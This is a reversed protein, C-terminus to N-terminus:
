AARRLPLDISPQHNLFLPLSSESRVAEFQKASGEVPVPQRPSHSSVEVGWFGVVRGGLHTRLLFHHKLCSVIVVNFKTATFSAVFNSFFAFPTCM